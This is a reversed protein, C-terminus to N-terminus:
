ARPTAAPVCAASIRCASGGLRHMWGPALRAGQGGSGAQTGAALRQCAGAIAALMARSPTYRGVHQRMLSVCKAVVAESRHCRCPTHMCCVHHSETDGACWRQSHLHQLVAVRLAQACMGRMACRQPQACARVLITRYVADVCREDSLYSQMVGVAAHGGGVPLHCTVEHARTAATHEICLRLMCM